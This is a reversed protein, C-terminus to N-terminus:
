AFCDFQHGLLAVDVNKRAKPVESHIVPMVNLLAMQPFADVVVVSVKM